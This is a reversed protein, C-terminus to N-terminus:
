IKKEENLNTEINKIKEKKENLENLCLNYNKNLQKYEDKNKYLQSNLDYIQNELNNIKKNLNKIIGNLSTNQIDLDKIKSEM